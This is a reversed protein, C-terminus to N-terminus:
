CCTAIRFNRGGPFALARHPHVVDVLTYGQVGTRWSVAFVKGISMVPLRGIATVAIDIASSDIFQCKM